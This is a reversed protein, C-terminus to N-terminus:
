DWARVIEGQEIEVLHKGAAIARMLEFFLTEAHQRDDTKTLLFREGSKICIIGAYPEPNKIPHEESFITSEKWTNDYVFLAAGETDIMIKRDTDYVTM